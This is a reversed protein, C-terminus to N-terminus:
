DQEVEKDELRRIKEQLDNKISDQKTEIRIKSENMLKLMSHKNEDSETKIQM